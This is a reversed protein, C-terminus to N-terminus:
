IVEYVNMILECYEFGTLTFAIRTLSTSNTTEGALLINSSNVVYGIKIGSSNRSITDDFLTFIANPAAEDDISVWEVLITKGVWSTFLTSWNYTVPSTDMSLAGLVINSALLTYTRETGTVGLISIGKKINGAVIKAQETASIQVTGSGNHYGSAITVVQAKTTIDTDVEGRNPMTGTIQTGGSVMTKGSLLDGAVADGYSSGTSIADVALYYADISENTLTGGKSNISSKLNAKATQLRSIETSISM